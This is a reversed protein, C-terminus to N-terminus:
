GGCLKWKDTNNVYIYPIAQIWGKTAGTYIFPLALVWESGTWIRITGSPKWLAYLTVTPSTYTLDTVSQGNSYTASTASSSTSWGLFSYGNRTFTNTTLEKATRCTHTSNSMTGSGGNANYIVQYTANLTVTNSTVSNGNTDTIVCYIQRGMRDATNMTVTYTSNTTSSKNFGSQGVNKYYWQYTLGEGVCTVTTSANQGVTVTVNSPQTTISVNKSWIAYLTVNGSPTYSGKSGSTATSSTSWGEFTYDKRTPTPLTVSGKTDTYTWYAYVTQASTYTASANASTASASTAWGKFTYVRTTPVSSSSTSCTGGNANYTVTYAVPQTNSRKPTSLSSIANNSYTTTGATTSSTYQAYLKLNANGTYTGGASYNTGTGDSKTNWKSFTYSITDTRSTSATLTTTTTSTNTGFYGGNANGTITFSDTVNQTTNQKTPTTSSLKLAVGNYKTQATPAGTGGNANYTVSYSTPSAATITPTGNYIAGDGSTYLYVYYTTNAKVTGVNTLSFKLTGNDYWSTGQSDVGLVAGSANSKVNIPQLDKDFFYAYCNKPKGEQKYKVSININAYPIAVDSKITIKTIYDHASGGINVKSSIGWGKGSNGYESIYSTTLAM